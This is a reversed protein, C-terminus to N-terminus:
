ELSLGKHYDASARITALVDAADRKEAEVEANFRDVDLVSRVAEDLWQELKAPPAAELEYAAPGFRAAFKTFRSSTTKADTNPPLGLEAVQDPTLGVKIADVKTIGFDDRMSKAFTRAIDWGEPDHDSLVLIILRDKGSAIYRDYMEKRPPLSSYGRGITYPIRFMWAVRRVVAEITMKEGVIEIQHPQTQCLDRYYGKCFNAVQQAIFPSVNPHVDWTTVPRTEDGIAEFPILGELRARTLLECTAKYCEKDNRFRNHRLRGKKDTWTDPRGSHRLPPDNLLEYFVKRDTIPLYDDLRDLVAKIADLFPRKAKSIRSRKTINGLFMTKAKVRSREAQESLLQDVADAPNILVLQERIRVHPSKDRQTNYEVVLKEFNPDVSYIDRYIAPITKWGLYKAVTWRRHGSILVDDQSLVIPDLQIGPRGMVRILDDLKKDDEHLKGYVLDNVPAPRIDAVPVNVVKPCTGIEGRGAETRSAKSKPKKKAVM